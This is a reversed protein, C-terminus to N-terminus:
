VTAGVALPRAVVRPPASSATAFVRASIIVASVAVSASFFASATKDDAYTSATSGVSSSPGHLYCRAAGDGGGAGDDNREQECPKTVDRAGVSVRVHQLSADERLLVAHLDVVAGDDDVGEIREDSRQDPEVVR